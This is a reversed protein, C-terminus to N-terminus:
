KKECIRHITDVIHITQVADLLQGAIRDLEDDGVRGVVLAHGVVALAAAEDVQRDHGGEEIRQELFEGADEGVVALDIVEGVPAAVGEVVRVEVGM